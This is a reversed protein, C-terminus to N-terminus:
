FGARTLHIKGDVGKKAIGLNLYFNEDSMTLFIHNPSTVNLLQKYSNISDLNLDDLSFEELCTKDSPTNSSDKIM